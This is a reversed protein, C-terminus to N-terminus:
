GPEHAEGPKIQAGLQLLLGLVDVRETNAVIKGDELHYINIGALVVEKHTAPIDMFAGRQIGRMVWSLVVKDDEAVMADSTLGADSFTAHLWRVADKVGDPGVFAGNVRYSPAFIEAVPGLNGTNWVEEIWRRLLAKHEEVAMVRVGQLDASQERRLFVARMM